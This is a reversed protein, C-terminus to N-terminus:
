GRALLALGQKILQEVGAGQQAQEKLAPKIRQLEGDTYGLAGLADLAEGLAAGLGGTESAPPSVAFASPTMGKLKDKLDLIMRQATKKGIGPFSTLYQVNEQQIAAVIQEPRAAALIALAGKPGLGSVDLLRRFLDREERKSFGYLYIADERVYQHTFLRKIQGQDAAFAYPNPCFLRYGLGAAAVVIFDSEIYDITGEVFDIM